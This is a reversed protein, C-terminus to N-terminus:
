YRNNELHIINAKIDLQQLLEAERRHCTFILVQGGRKSLWRLTQELRNEDYMAFVDDLLVPMPEECLVESVAMRLAFYVQEVTGRSLQHLAVPRNWEYLTIKMDEDMSLQAYKGETIESLIEEMRGQLRRGIRRRMGGSLKDLTEMALNLSEIETECNIIEQSKGSLERINDQVNQMATSKEEIQQQLTEERGHLRSIYGQIKSLQSQLAGVQDQSKDSNTDYEKDPMEERRKVATNRRKRVEADATKRYISWVSFVLILAGALGFVIQLGPTLSFLNWLSALVCIIGLVIGSIESLSGMGASSKSNEERRNHDEASRRNKDRSRGSQKEEAAELGIGAKRQGETKQREAELMDATQLSRESWIQQEARVKELQANLSDQEQQLYAMQNEQQERQQTQRDQRVQRRADWEKKKKKLREAARQVDVDQAGASEYNSMHKQLEQVMGEDTESRLQAVSVTNDYISESIGGLLMQLDGQAISLQEGDTECVLNERVDGKYFNREMRFEKEGAQFCMSGAYDAPRDWPEYKTYPDTKSARGRYRQMGFLMGRIFAHLTSKGSENSGYIVNIGDKLFIERDKLKGFHQIGLYTLRM